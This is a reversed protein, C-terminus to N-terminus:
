CQKRFHVLPTVEPAVKPLVKYVGPRSTDKVVVDQLTPPFVTSEPPEYLCQGGEHVAETCLAWARRVPQGMITVFQQTRAGVSGYQVPGTTMGSAMKRLRQAFHMANEMHAPAPRALNWAVCVWNGLLAVLIGKSQDLPVMLTGLEASVKELGGGEVVVVGVTATKTVGYGNVNGPCVTALSQTSSSYESVSAPRTRLPRFRRGSLSVPWVCYVEVPAAVGKLELLQKDGVTAPITRSAYEADWATCLVAVAGPDCINELRAAVNVTHGFYDTRGTQPCNEVDVPGTNVGIRVTLGGWLSGQEACIPSEDLLSAPWDAERLREHVQLAFDIGARMTTFAIMFADGITKVEYGGFARMVERIVANHIRLGARMGEPACEWISTSARIDTFVITAQEDDIGPPVVSARNSYSPNTEGDMEQFLAAPLYPRYRRLNQEMEKLTEFMLAPLHAREAALQEAVGEVDYRALLCSVEEVARITHQMSRQEQLVQHAFHKTAVFDIVFVTTGVLFSPVVEMVGRKCPPMACDHLKEFHSRRSEASLSGPVDYMGFRTTSELANLALWFVAIGVFATIYRQEVRLFLFMDVVLVMAPYFKEGSMRMDLDAVVAMVGLLYLFAIIPVARMKQKCMIWLFLTFWMAAACVVNMTGLLSGTTVYSPLAALLIMVCAFSVMGLLKREQYEQRSAAGDRQWSRELFGSFSEM